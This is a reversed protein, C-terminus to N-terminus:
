SIERIFSKEIESIYKKAACVGIVLRGVTDKVSKPQFKIFTKTSEIMYNTNYCNVLRVFADLGSRDNLLDTIIKHEMPHVSNDLASIICLIQIVMDYGISDVLEDYVQEVIDLLEYYTYDCLEEFARSM